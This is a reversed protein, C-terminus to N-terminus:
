RCDTWGFEDSTDDSKERSGVDALLALFLDDAAEHGGFFADVVESAPCDCPTFYLRM